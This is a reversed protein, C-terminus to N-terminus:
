ATPCKKMTTFSCINLFLITVITVDLAGKVEILDIFSKLENVAGTQRELKRIWANCFHEM